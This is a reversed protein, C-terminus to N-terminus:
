TDAFLTFWLTCLTCLPARLGLVKDSNVWAFQLHFLAADSRGQKSM